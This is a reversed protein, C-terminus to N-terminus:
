FHEPRASRAKSRARAKSSRPTQRIIGDDVATNFIAKLRRYAKATTVTSLGSDLLKKRWRRVKADSIEALEARRLAARHAVPVPLQLAPHDQAAPEPTGRDVIHRLPDATGQGRQPRDLRRQCDRSRQPDALHRRRDPERFTRDAPRQARGTGTAPKGSARPFSASPVSAAAAARSNTM